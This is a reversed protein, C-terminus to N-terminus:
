FGISDTAQEMLHGYHPAAMDELPNGHGDQTWGKADTLFRFSRRYILRARVQITGTGSSPVQFSYDTLDVQNAPIRSDFTIGTADTFFTPGQGSANHNVKGFYKGPRGAYYGLAPDGVGGLDHVVQTGSHPLLDTNPDGGDVWAEVVLIMNRITVGTPVHHGTLSNDIEVHVQLENGVRQVQMAMEVANDLFQPTTGKIDHSRVAGPARDLAIVACANQAGTSPMHCDVCSAYNPSDPDGYDSEAWEIYTPESTPGRFSHDEHIDNKDQHCVGCVEAMLQPQYAPEMIGSLHYDADPYAGYMVQEFGNPLNMTVAGPVIGPFNIKSVNVDAIKHCVECSIGHSTAISPYSSDSPSEMRGAYDANIWKEPQHCSACESEPNSSAFVSDRLYVFGGM